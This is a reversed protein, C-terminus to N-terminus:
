ESVEPLWREGSISSTLPNGPHVENHKVANDILMGSTNGHCYRKEHQKMQVQIDIVLAKDFRIELLAILMHALFDLETQLSVVEKIGTSYCM